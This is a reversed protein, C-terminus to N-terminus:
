ARCAAPLGAAARGPQRRSTARRRYILAAAAARRQSSAAGTPEAGYRAPATQPVDAPPGCQPAAAAM